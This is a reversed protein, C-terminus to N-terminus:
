PASFLSRKLPVQTCCKWGLVLDSAVTQVKEHEYESQVEIQIFKLSFVFPNM